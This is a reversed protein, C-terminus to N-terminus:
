NTSSSQDAKKSLQALSDTLTQSLLQRAKAEILGFFSSAKGNGFFSCNYEIMAVEIRALTEWDPVHNEVLARTSLMLPGQRGEINVGVFAMLKLMTEENVKYDGLKPMASMPYKAIIERGAVAPFKSLVYVREDGAQTKITVEKPQLM